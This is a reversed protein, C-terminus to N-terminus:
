NTLALYRILYSVGVWTLPTVVAAVRINAKVRKRVWEKDTQRQNLLKIKNQERSTRAHM